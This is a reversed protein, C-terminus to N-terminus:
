LIRKLDYTNLDPWLKNLFFLETFSSQFILFDSLRKFGGTRVLMDPDPIGATM